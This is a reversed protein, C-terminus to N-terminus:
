ISHTKSLRSFTLNLLHAREFPGITGFIGRVCEQLTATCLIVTVIQGFGWANESDGSLLNENATRLDHVMYLRMIYQNMAILIIDRPYSEGVLPVPGQFSRWARRTQVPVLYLLPRLFRHTLPTFIATTSTMYCLLLASVPFSSTASLYAYAFACSLRPTAAGFQTNYCRGPLEEDWGALKIALTVCVSVYAFAFLTLPTM